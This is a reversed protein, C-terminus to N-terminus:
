HWGYGPASRHDSQISRATGAGESGGTPRSRCCAAWWCSFPGSSRCCPLAPGATQMIGALQMPFVIRVSGVIVSLWGFVTILVPWGGTWRNHFYLIALGPVFAAYGALVILMSFKSLEEIMEPMAGLNLLVMAATAVLTPGLLAAITKSIAM